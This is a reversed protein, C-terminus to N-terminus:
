WGFATERRREGETYLDGSDTRRTFGATMAISTVAATAPLRVDIWAGVLDGTRSNWASELDGDALRGVQATEDRYVSSVAVDTAVSQLLDVIPTQSAAAAPPPVIAADPAPTVAPSTVPPPQAPAHRAPPRPESRPPSGCGHLVLVFVWQRRRVRM